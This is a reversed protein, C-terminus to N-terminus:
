RFHRSGPDFGARAQAAACHPSNGRSERRRKLELKVLDPLPEAAIYRDAAAGAACQGGRASDQPVGWLHDPKFQALTAQWLLARARLLREICVICKSLYSDAAHPDAGADVVHFRSARMGLVKRRRDPFRDAALAVLEPVHLHRSLRRAAARHRAAATAPGRDVERRRRDIARQAARCTRSAM